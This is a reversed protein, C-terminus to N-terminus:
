GEFRLVNLGGNWDSMYMTGDPQVNIDAKRSPTGIVEINGDGDASSTSV